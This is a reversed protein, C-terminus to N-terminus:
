ISTEWNFWEIGEQNNLSQQEIWFIEQEMSRVTLKFSTWFVRKLKSDMKEKKQQSYWIIWELFFHASLNRQYKQNLVLTFTKV